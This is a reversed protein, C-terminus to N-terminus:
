HGGGGAAEIAKPMDGPQKFLHEWQEMFQPTLFRAPMNKFYSTPPGQMKNAVHPFPLLTVEEVSEEDKPPRGTSCSDVQEPKKVPYPGGHFRQYECACAFCPCSLGPPPQAMPVSMVQTEGEIVTVEDGGVMVKTHSPPPEHRRKGRLKELLKRGAPTLTAEKKLYLAMMIQEDATLSAM